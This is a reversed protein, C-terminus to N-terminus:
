GVLRVEKEPYWFSKKVIEREKETDLNMFDIINDEDPFYDHCYSPSVDEPVIGIFDTGTVMRFIEEAESLQFPVHNAYLALAIKITENVRSDSSGGLSLDWGGEQPQVYLSIHTSNGGRCIEWPHGGRSDQRYWKKFASESRQDIDRLGCDRGDALRSYKEKASMKTKEKAFYSNRDYGMECYRFFDRATLSKLVQPPADEASQLVIQHLTEIDKKTIGKKIRKEEKPFVQWYDKRVIRGFRKQHPLHKAIYQNYAAPDKRLKAIVKKLSAHVWDLLKASVASERGDDAPDKKTAFALRTNIYFFVQGYVQSVSISYWKTKAPYYSKWLAIFEKKTKVTGDRVYEKFSGFDEMTGREAEVWITRIEDDGMKEFSKMTKFLEKIKQKLRADGVEPNQQAREISSDIDPAKM